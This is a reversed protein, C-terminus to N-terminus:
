VTNIKLLVEKITTALGDAFIDVGCERQIRVTFEALDLSDFGIDKRLDMEEKLYPILEKGQNALMFNIIELLRQMM